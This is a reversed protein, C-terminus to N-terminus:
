VRSSGGVDWCKADAALATECLEEFEPTVDTAEGLLMQLFQRESERVHGDSYLMKLLYFQEDYGIRGDALVVRKLIPFFLDDFEPCVEDAESLLEVLFRVDALDLCGDEWVHNQIIEVENPTIKGDQLLQSRLQNLGPM